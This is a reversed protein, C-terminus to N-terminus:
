IGFSNVYGFKGRGKADDVAPFVGGDTDPFGGTNVFVSACDGRDRFVAFEGVEVFFVTLLNDLRVDLSFSASSTDVTRFAETCTNVRRPKHLNINVFSLFFRSITNGSVLHVFSRASIPAPLIGLHAVSLLQIAVFTFPIHLEIYWFM